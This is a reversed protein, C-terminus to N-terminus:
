YGVLGSYTSIIDDPKAGVFFFKQIMGGIVIKTIQTNVGGNFYLIYDTAYSNLDFVGMWDSTHSQYM